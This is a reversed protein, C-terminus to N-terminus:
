DAAVVRLHRVRQPPRSTDSHRQVAGIVAAHEAQVTAADTQTQLWALLVECREGATLPSAELRKYENTFDINLAAPWGRTPLMLAAWRLRHFVHDYFYRGEGIAPHDDDRGM